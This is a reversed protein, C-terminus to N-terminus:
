SSVGLYNSFEEATLVRGKGSQVSKL